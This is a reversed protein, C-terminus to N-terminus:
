DVVQKWSGSEPIMQVTTTYGQPPNVYLSRDYVIENAGECKVADSSAASECILLGRIRATGALSATGRVHVLGQIESPYEDAMDSDSAGDYPVGAPNFNALLLLESLPVDSSYQFVADGDVILSPYDLRYPQLLVSSDVTVKKGPCIVVLTGYIRTNKLVLDSSTRIVYVGEANPSGWPNREPGLVQRDITNGPAILTGLAAYMEPIGPDPFAKPPVGLSVTGVVIGVNTASLAEVSAAITGDNRLSGNTSLTALNATVTRGATIHLQGGTHLAYNLAPLPVPNAALTVQVIQRARGKVATAKLLLPDHPRNALNGDIPDVAELSFTGSGIPQDAAWVGNPRKSRWQPDQSIWLRGLEIASVAYLRAEAAEGMTHAARAQARVALLAGLGLTAVVTTAALVVLYTSARRRAPGRRAPRSCPPRSARGVSERREAAQPASLPVFLKM